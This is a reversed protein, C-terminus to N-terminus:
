LAGSPGSGVARGAMGRIVLERGDQVRRLVLSGKGSDITIVKYTKRALTIVDDLRVTYETGDVTLVLRATYENYQVDQGKVLPILKDGRKLTLVSMDVPRTMGGVNQEEEKPTYKFLTFGEVDEGLKQFYTRVNGRTNIAFKLSGDPLTIVSKFRLRFPDAVIAVLRLKAIISPSVNEDRPDTRPDAQFEEINTFGDGDPDMEADRPDRDDLGHDREWSDWLGDSDGDYDARDEKEPPQVVDCFPCREVAYEIPRRCDVCYVRREPVFMAQTWNTAQSPAQFAALGAEYPATDQAATLPHRPQLSDIAEVFRKQKTQILGVQLALYLLSGLLGVLMVIAVLKDYHM